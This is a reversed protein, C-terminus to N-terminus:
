EAWDARGAENRGDALGRAYGVEEASILSGQHRSSMRYMAKHVDTLEDHMASWAEAAQNEADRLAELLGHESGRIICAPPDGDESGFHLRACRQSTFVEDCHFCRWEKAGNDQEMEM